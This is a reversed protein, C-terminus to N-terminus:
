YFLWWKDREIVKIEKAADVSIAVDADVIRNLIRVLQRWDEKDRVIDSVSLSARTFWIKESESISEGRERELLFPVMVKSYYHDLAEDILGQKELSRGIKYDAQLVTDKRAQPSQTVVRYSHVAEKYRDADDAGLTFLCDGKRGWALPVLSSEPFNNIVEDFVLIAGSFKGLECMADAQYFRAEPLHRSEPYEKVLRAFLEIAHVYEKLKLATMGSRYLASDALDDKPFQKVFARFEEAARQYNGTNYAFRGIRFRVRPAWDSDPYRKMFDECMELAQDDHGLRYLCMARMFFAHSRNDDEPYEEVVRTFDKLADPSWQRYRSIGRRYLAQSFLKGAPYRKMMGTFVADAGKWDKQELYLIGIALLSEQAELTDPHQSVVAEFAKEADKSQGLKELCVGIQFMAKARYRSKPFEKLFNEYTALANKCQEGLVQADGVKFLSIMKQEPDKFLTYAKEFALAAETYRGVGLLAWGSGERARAYGGADAFVELYQQYVVAAEDYRNSSLLADGLRLQLEAALVSDPNDAVYSKVLPVANAFDGQELLLLSLEHTLKRKSDDSTVRALTETLLGVDGAVTGSGFEASNNSRIEVVALVTNVLLNETLNDVSLLRELIDIGKKTDGSQLLAKGTWYLANNSLYQDEGKVVPKLVSVAAKLEGNFILAKGWDLRNLLAEDSEPFKKSFNQFSKVAGSVDGTKLQALSLLRLSEEGLRGSPLNTQVSSLLGLSEAYRKKHYSVLARWYVAAAPEIDAKVAPTDLLGLLEDYKKQALLANFIGRRASSKDSAVASGSKLVATFSEVAVEAFGDELALEGAALLDAVDTVNSVSLCSAAANTVSGSKGAGFAGGCFASFVLTIVVMRLM